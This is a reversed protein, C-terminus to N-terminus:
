RVTSATPNEWSRCYMGSNHGGHKHHVTRVIALKDARKALEPLLESIQIGPVNTSIPQFLGRVNDPARPKMDWLDLHSPAGCNFIMIVSKARRQSEILPLSSAALWNSWLMGAAGLGGTTLAQRRSLPLADHGFNASAGKSPM